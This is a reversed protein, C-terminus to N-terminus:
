AILQELPIGHRKSQVSIDINFESIAESSPLWPRNHILNLKLGMADNINIKIHRKGGSGMTGKIVNLPEWYNNICKKQPINIWKYGTSPNELLSIRVVDGVNLCIRTNNDHISINWINNWMSGLGETGFIEKADKPKFKKLEVYKKLTIMRLTALRNITAQYSTDMRLALEYISLSKIDSINKVGIKHLTMIILRRPMLICSAFEEAIQEKEDKRYEDMFLQSSTDISASDNRIFHCLEHAATYRQRTIPLNENILIGARRNITAPLYAGALRDLNQFNLIIAKEEIIKFIDIPETNFKYKILIRSAEATAIKIIESKSLTMKERGVEM